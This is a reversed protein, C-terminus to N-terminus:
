CLNDASWIKWDEKTDVDQLTPLLAVRFGSPLNKRLDAM